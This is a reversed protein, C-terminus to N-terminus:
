LINIIFNHKLSYQKINKKIENYYSSSIIIITKNNLIPTFTSLTGYPYQLTRNNNNSEIIGIIKINNKLLLKSIILYPEGYGYIFIEKINYKLLTFIKLQLYIFKHTDITTLFNNIIKDDCLITPLNLSKLLINYLVFINHNKKYINCLNDNTFFTNNKIFIILTQLLIHQNDKIIKTYLFNLQKVYRIFFDIIYQNFINQKILFNYTTNIAIFIDNIYKQNIKKHSASQSLILYNYLPQEVLSIKKAFYFLEHTNGLDECFIKNEFKINHKTFLQKKFIKNWTAPNLTNNLIDKFSIYKKDFKVIEIINNDEDIKKYDCIVIDSKTTIATQYMLEYMNKEITDDADVFTVFDGNANSVGVNRPYSPSGYNKNLTILKIRNDQQILKTVIQNSNDTSADDVVIIEINKLTQNIISKLTKYIFTQANYMPIVVTLFIKKNSHELM